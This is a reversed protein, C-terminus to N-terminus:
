AQIVRHVGWEKTSRNESIKELFELAGPIEEELTILLNTDDKAAQLLFVLLSYVMESQLLDEALM